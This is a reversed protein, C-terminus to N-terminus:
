TKRGATRGRGRHERGFRQSDYRLYELKADWRLLYGRSVLQTGASLRPPAAIAAFHPRDALAPNTPAEARKNAVITAASYWREVKGFRLTWMVTERSTCGCPKM